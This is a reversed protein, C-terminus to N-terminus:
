SEAVDLADMDVQLNDVFYTMETEWVASIGFSVYLTDEEVEGADWTFAYTRWGEALNLAERLGGASANTEGTSNTGPEPFHEEVSPEETGIIMVLHALTNFSESESWAELSVDARYTHGPLVRVPRTLWITGDDQRGDLTFQVSREGSAAREASSSINWAVKGGTNPDDPVHSHQTWPDIGNEFDDDIDVHAPPDPTTCGALLLAATVTLALVTRPAM